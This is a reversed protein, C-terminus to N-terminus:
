DVVTLYSCRCWGPQGTGRFDFTCDKCPVPMQELADELTLVRGHLTRCAECSADRGTWIQVKEVFGLQKYHALEMRRSQQLLHFFDRGDEYLYHAMLFYLFAPPAAGSTVFDHALRNYLSWLVDGSTPQRGFRQALEDRERLFDADRVDFTGTGKLTHFHDVVRADQETLLTSPFLDQGSRVFIYRGCSPCKKKRQPTEDLVESCYPCTPETVM